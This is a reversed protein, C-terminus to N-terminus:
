IETWNSIISDGERHIYLRRNPARSLYKKLGKAALNGLVERCSEVAVRFAKLQPAYPRAADDTGHEIAAGRGIGYSVVIKLPDNIDGSRNNAANHSLRDNM